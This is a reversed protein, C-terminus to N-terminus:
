NAMEFGLNLDTWKLIGKKILIYVCCLVSMCYLEILGVPRGESLHQIQIDGHLM